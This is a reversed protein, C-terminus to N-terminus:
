ASPKQAAAPSPTTAAPSPTAPKPAAAPNGPRTKQLDQELADAQRKLSEAMDKDGLKGSVSSLTRFVNVPVPDGVRVREALTHIQQRLENQEVKPNENLDAQCSLLACSTEFASLSDQPSLGRLIEAAKAPNGGDRLNRALEFGYLWINRALPHPCADLVALAKELSRQEGAANKAKKFALSELYLQFAKNSLLVSLLAPAVPRALRADMAAVAEQYRGMASLTRALRICQIGDPDLTQALRYHRAALPFKGAAQAELGLYGHMLSLAPGIGEGRARAKRLAWPFAADQWGSQVALLMMGDLADIGDPDADLAIQYLGKAKDNSGSVTYQWAAMNAAPYSGPAMDLAQGALKLDFAPRGGARSLIEYSRYSRGYTKLAPLSMTIPKLAKAAQDPPFPLGTARDLFAIVERRFAVLGGNVDLSGGASPLADGKHLGGIDLPQTIETVSDNTLDMLWLTIKADPTVRGGLLFRAGDTKAADAPFRPPLAGRMYADLEGASTFLARDHALLFTEEFAPNLVVVNELINQLAPGLDCAGPSDPQLPLVLLRESALAPVARTLGWAIVILVFLARPRLTSHAIM